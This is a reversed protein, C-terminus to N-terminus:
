EMNLGMSKAHPTRTLNGSLRRQTDAGRCSTIASGLSRWRVATSARAAEADRERLEVRKREGEGTRIWFKRRLSPRFRLAVFQACAYRKLPALMVFAVTM